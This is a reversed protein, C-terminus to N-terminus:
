FRFLVSVTAVQATGGRELIGLDSAQSAAAESITYFDWELAYRVNPHTWWAAMISNQVMHIDQGTGFDNNSGDMRSWTYSLRVGENRSGSMFGKPGYVFMAVTGLYTSARAASGSMGRREGQYNEYTFGVEAPGWTYQMWPGTYVFSGRLDSSYITQRNGRSTTRAALPDSSHDGITAVNIPVGIVFGKLPGKTKSFPEVVIGGIFGAQSQPRPSLKSQDFYSGDQYELDFDSIQGIDGLPVNEWVLGHGSSSGTTFNQDYLAQRELTLGSSSSARTFPSAAEMSVAAIRVQPYYPSFKELHVRMGDKKFAGARTYDQTMGVQYLGDQWYYNWDLEIHRYMTSGQGSNSADTDPYFFTQSQFQNGARLAWSRDAGSITVGRGPRYRFSPIAAAAATANKAEEKVKAQESKLQALEDELAKIREDTSAARVPVAAMIFLAAFALASFSAWLSKTKM